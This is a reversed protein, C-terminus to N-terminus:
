GLLRWSALSAPRQDARLTIAGRAFAIARRLRRRDKRGRVKRLRDRAFADLRELVLATSGSAALADVLAELAYTDHEAGLRASLLDDAGGLAGLAEAAARRIEVDRDNLLETLTARSSADGLRGLATCAAARVSAEPDGLARELACLATGAGLRGLAWAAGCRVWVDADTAIRELLATTADSAGVQGLAYCAARRVDADPDGLAGLFVPVAAAGCGQLGLGARNRINADPDRLAQALVPISVPDRLAGLALLAEFRVWPLGRQASELLSPLARADGLRALAVAARFRVEDDDDDLAGGLARRAAISDIRQLVIAAWRRMSAQAARLERHLAPVAPDGLEVLARWRAYSASGVATGRLLAVYREALRGRMESQEESM